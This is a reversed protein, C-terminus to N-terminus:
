TKIICIRRANKSSFRREIYWKQKDTLKSALKLSDMNLENAIKSIDEKQMGNHYEPNRILIEKLESIYENQINVYYKRDENFNKMDEDKKYLEILERCKEDYKESMKKNDDKIEKFRETLSEKLEADNKPNNKLEYYDKDKKLSDNRDEKTLLSFPKERQPEKYDIKEAIETYKISEIYNRSNEDAQLRNLTVSNKGFVDIVLHEFKINCKEQIQLLEDKTIKGKKCNEKVFDKAQEIKEIEQKTRDKTINISLKKDDYKSNADYTKENINFINIAVYRQSIYNRDAYQKIEKISLKDGNSLKDNKIDDYLRSIQEKKDLLDIRRTRIKENSKEDNLKDILRDNQMDIKKIDEKELIAISM